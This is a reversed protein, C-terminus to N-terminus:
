KKGSYFERVTDIVYDQEKRSLHQDVPFSITTAAHRDTVPFDGKKYGLSSLAEQRYLPIPYHVKAEIGADLCHQLLADRDEVFLIYLLYVNKTRESRLPVRVEPIAAFGVDYYAATEARKIVIDPTKPVIWKGVVALLSDLRTNYGLIEMEDRNRLGHNRLLRVQKNMADDNTVVIGADGWVNIIKLPHMSFGAALGITGVRVGDIEGLLSQCADEIVPLDHKEAIAMIRPMDAADGTLHVPMIAKTKPTIAAELQDVDMCFSDDCDIFVSKGGVENIAGVTAYFTNACTIIEDGREIGLAKLPLKLSDTGSGVGIAHKVGLMDAFMEEFEGVPKGLTFDGTAVLDRIESMIDDIEAFQQPLPSYRVHM